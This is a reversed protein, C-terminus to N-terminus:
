GPQADTVVRQMQARRTLHVVLFLDFLCVALNWGYLWIVPNLAGTTSGEIWKAGIGAAYGVCVLTVFSTSKGAAVGTMLMKAVSMYWGVSFAILMSAELIIQM